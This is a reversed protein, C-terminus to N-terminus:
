KEDDVVESEAFIGGQSIASPVPKIEIPLLTKRVYNEFESDSLTALHPMLKEIVAGQNQLRIKKAKEAEAREKKLLQKRQNELRKIDEEIKTRKEITSKSMIHVEKKLKQNQLCFPHNSM